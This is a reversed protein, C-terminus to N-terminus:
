RVEGGCPHTDYSGLSPVTGYLQNSPFICLFLKLEKKEEDMVMKFLCGSM